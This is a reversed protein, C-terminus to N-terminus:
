LICSFPRRPPILPCGSPQWLGNLFDALAEDYEEKTEFIRGQINRPYTADVGANAVMRCDAEDYGMEVLTAVYPNSITKNMIMPKCLIPSFDLPSTVSTWSDKVGRKWLSMWTTNKMRKTRRHMRHSETVYADYKYCFDKVEKDM